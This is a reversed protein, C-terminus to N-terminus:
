NFGAHKIMKEAPLIEEVLRGHEFRYLRDCHTVTSLRHAVIIITKTGHLADIATMVGEETSTDLASTAEDLVLVQPDHYLARAIGIRQRQGGSLRVGREGVITDLGKDLCRIFEDLQAAKLSRNVALEDIEDDALGFAVNRRLTDDTLYIAQPVYGIQSQWGRINTSIKQGDVLVEGEKPILLGMIVDVLTSKGSGSTGIFGVSQSKRINLNINKLAPTTANPYTFTLNNIQIDHIFQMASIEKDDEIDRELEFENHLTEIIPIGYRVTQISQLMRNASPLLRFAAAAFLGLTPLVSKVDGGHKIMIFVLMALGVIALFELCLRPMQQLGIQQGAVKASESNHLAYENLFNEVRGLLLVDKVGGLGQQLHQIRMGEHYQRAAGWRMIRKRTLKLFGYGAIVLTSVVLIAGLPEIWLLLIAIGVVVLAETTCILFASISNTLLNTEVTINRILQATNRLLHFKYPQKIYIEFLRQSTHKQVSFAFRAQRWALLALFLNKIGYISVLFLMAWLIIESQSPKDLMIFLNTVFPYKTAIDDQMMLGILPVVLGVGLTELMMGVVMMCLLVLAGRQEAKTLLSRFKHFIEM